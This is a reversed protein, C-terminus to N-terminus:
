NHLIKLRAKKPLTLKLAFAAMNTYDKRDKKKRVTATSIRPFKTSHRREYNEINQDYGMTSDLVELRKVQQKHKTSNSQM